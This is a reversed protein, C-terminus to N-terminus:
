ELPSLPSADLQLRKWTAALEAVIARRIEINKYHTKIFDVIIPGLLGLLWGLFVLLVANWVASAPDAM